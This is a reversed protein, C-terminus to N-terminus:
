RVGKGIMFWDTVKSEVRVTAEQDEYLNRLGSLTSEIAM